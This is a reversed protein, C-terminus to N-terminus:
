RRRKWADSSKEVADRTCVKGKRQKIGKIYKITKAPRQIENRERKDKFLSLYFSIISSM